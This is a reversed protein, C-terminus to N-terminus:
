PELDLLPNREGSPLARAWTRVNGLQVAWSPNAPKPIEREILSTGGARVVFQLKGFAPLGINDPGSASGEYATGILLATHPEIDGVRLETSASDWAGVSYATMESPNAVVLFTVTADRSRGRSMRDFDDSVRKFVDNETFRYRTVGPAFPLPSKSGLMRHLTPLEVMVYFTQLDPISKEVLLANELRKRESDLTTNQYATFAAAGAFVLNGVLSLITLFRPTEASKEQASGSSRGGSKPTM